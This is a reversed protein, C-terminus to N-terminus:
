IDTIAEKTAGETVSNWFLEQIHFREMLELQSSLIDSRSSELNKLKDIEM